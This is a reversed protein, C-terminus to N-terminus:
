AKHLQKHAVSGEVHAGLTILTEPYLYATFRWPHTTPRTPPYARTCGDDAVLKTLAEERHNVYWELHPCGISFQKCIWLLITPM